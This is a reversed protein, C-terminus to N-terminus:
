DCELESLRWGRGPIAVDAVKWEGDEDMLTWEVSRDEGFVSFDATVYAVDGDLEESLTLTRAVEDDDFDQADLTMVFDLCIGGTEEGVRDNEDLAARAADTFLHRNEPMAEAGINEYFFAVADSAAGALAPSSAATIAAALLLIRPTVIAGDSITAASLVM